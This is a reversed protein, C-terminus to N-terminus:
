HGHVHHHLGTAYRIKGIVPDKEMDGFDAFDIRRYQAIAEATTRAVPAADIAWTQLLRTVTRYNKEGREILVPLTLLESWCVETLMGNLVGRFVRAPGSQTNLSGMDKLETGLAQPDILAQLRNWSHQEGMAALEGPYYDVIVRDGPFVQHKSIQGGGSKSWIESFAGGILRTEIQRDDRWLYWRLPTRRNQSPQEGDLAVHTEFMAALPVFSESPLVKLRDGRDQDIGHAQTEPYILLSIACLVATPIITLLNLRYM